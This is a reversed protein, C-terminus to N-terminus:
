FLYRDIYKLIEIKNIFFSYICFIERERERERERSPACLYTCLFSVPLDEHGIAHIPVNLVCHSQISGATLEEAIKAYQRINQIRETKARPVSPM